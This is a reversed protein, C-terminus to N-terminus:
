IVLGGWRLISTARWRDVVVSEAECDSGIGERVGEGDVGDEEDTELCVSWDELEDREESGTVGLEERSGLEEVERTGEVVEVEEVVVEEDERLDVVVILTRGREKEKRSLESM